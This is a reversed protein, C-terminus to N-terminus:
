KGGGEGLKRHIEALAKEAVRETKRSTEASFRCGALVGAAFATALLDSWAPNPHQEFTKGVYEDFCRSAYDGFAGALDDEDRERENVM